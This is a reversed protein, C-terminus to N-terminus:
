GFTKFSKDVNKEIVKKVSDIETEIANHESQIQQLELELEKDKQQWYDTLYEYTATVSADDSTDLEDVINGVSSYNIEEYGTQDENPKLLTWEGNRLQTELYDNDNCRDDYCYPKSLIEEAEAYMKDRAERAEKEVSTDVEPFMKVNNADAFKYGSENWFKNLSVSDMDKISKLFEEQNVEEGNANLVPNEFGVLEAFNNGTVKEKTETNHEGKVNTYFYKQDVKAAYESDAQEKLQAALKAADETVPKVIAGEKNILTYGLGEPYQATITSYNLAVKNVETGNGTPTSFMLRRNNIGESYALSADSLRKAIDNRRQNIQQAQYEKDSKRATLQLYRAQSASLGM